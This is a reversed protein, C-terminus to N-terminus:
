AHGVLGPGLPRPLEKILAIDVLLSDRELRRCGGRVGERAAQRARWRRDAYSGKPSM